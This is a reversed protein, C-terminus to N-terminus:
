GDLEALVQATHEGLHPVPGVRVPEGDFDIPSAVARFPEEGDRPVMDVFAGSAEVQADDLITFPTNIPAWWVDHADFRAALESMSHSAFEVDLEAV